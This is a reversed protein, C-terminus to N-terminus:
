VKRKRLVEASIWSLVLLMGGAIGFAVCKRIKEFFGWWFYPFNWDTVLPQLVKLGQTATTSGTPVYELLVSGSVALFAYPHLELAEYTFDASKSAWLSFKFDTYCLLWYRVLGYCLGVSVVVFQHIITGYSTQRLGFLNKDFISPFSYRFTIESPYGPLDFYFNFLVMNICALLGFAASLYMIAPIKKVAPIKVDRVRPILVSALVIWYNKLLLDLDDSLTEFRIIGMELFFHLSIAMFITSFIEFLNHNWHSISELNKSMLILANALYIFTYWFVLTVPLLVYTFTGPIAGEYIKSIGAAGLLLPLVLARAVAQAWHERFSKYNKESEHFDLSYLYVELVVWTALLVKVFVEGAMNKPLLDYGMYRFIILLSACIGQWERVFLRDISVHSHSPGYIASVITFIAWLHLLVVFGLPSYQIGIKSVLHTQNTLNAYGAILGIVTFALAVFNVPYCALLFGFALAALLLNKWVPQKQLSQNYDICCTVGGSIHQQFESIKANCMHNMMIYSELTFGPEEFHLGSKDRQWPHNESSLDNFVPVYYASIENTHGPLTRYRVGGTKKKPDYDFLKHSIDSIEAIKTTTMQPTHKDDLVNFHPVMPPALYVREFSDLQAKDIIELVKEMQEQYGSVNYQVYWLGSTLILYTKPSYSANKNLKKAKAKSNAKLGFAAIDAITDFGTDNLYRDWLLTATVKNYVSRAHEKIHPKGMLNGSLTNTVGWYIQRATSDGVILIEDGPRLCAGLNSAIFSEYLKLVCGDPQWGSPIYSADNLYRGSKLVTDCNNTLTSQTKELSVRYRNLHILNSIIAIVAILPIFLIHLRLEM